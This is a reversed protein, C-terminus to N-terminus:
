GQDGLRIFMRTDITAFHNLISSSGAKWTDGWIRKITVELAKLSKAEDALNNLVYLEPKYFKLAYPKILKKLKLALSVLNVKNEDLSPLPLAFTASSEVVEALDESRLKKDKRLEALPELLEKAYGVERGEWKDKDKLIKKRLPALEKRYESLVRWYDEPKNMKELVLGLLFPASFYDTYLSKKKAQYNAPANKSLVVDLVHPRKFEEEADALPGRIKRKLLESYVCNRFSSTMYPLNLAGALSDNFLVCSTQISLFEELDSDRGSATLNAPQLASVQRDLYAGVYVGDWYYPSDHYKHVIRLDLQIEGPKKKFLKAWASAFGNVNIASINNNIDARLSHLSNYVFEKDPYQMVVFVNEEPFDRLLPTRSFPQMIVHDFCLVAFTFVSLDLLATPHPFKPYTVCHLANFVTTTDLMVSLSGEPIQKRIEGFRQAPGDPLQEDLLDIGAYEMERRLFEFNRENRLAVGIQNFEGETLVVEEKTSTNRLLFRQEDFAAQINERKGVVYM